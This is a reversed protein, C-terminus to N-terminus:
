KPWIVLVPKAGDKPLDSETYGQERLEDTLEEIDVGGERDDEAWAGTSLQEIPCFGNGEPDISLLVIRDDDHDKLLERLQKVTIM